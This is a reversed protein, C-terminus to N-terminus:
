GGNLRKEVAEITKKREDALGDEPDTGLGKKLALLYATDLAKHASVVVDPLVAQRSLDRGTGDTARSYPVSVSFFRNIPFGATTNTV